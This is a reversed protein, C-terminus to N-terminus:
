RTCASCQGKKLHKECYAKGCKKCINKKHADCFVQSCGPENCKLKHDSCLIPENKCLMCTFYHDKCTVKGCRTCTKTCNDCFLKKCENCLHMSTTRAGCYACDVHYKETGAAFANIIATFTGKERRKDYGQVQIRIVPVFVISADFNLNDKIKQIIQERNLPVMTLELQKLIKSADEIQDDLASIDKTTSDELGQLNDGKNKTTGKSRRKINIQQLQRASAERRKVLADIRSKVEAITVKRTKGIIVSLRENLVVNNNYYETLTGLLKRIVPESPAIQTVTTPVNIKLPLNDKVPYINSIVLNQDLEARNIDPIQTLMFLESLIDKTNISLLDEIPKDLNLTTKVCMLPILREHIDLIRRDVLDIKMGEIIKLVDFNSPYKCYFVYIQKNIPPGVDIPPAPGMAETIIIESSDLEQQATKTSEKTATIGPPELGPANADDNKGEAQGSNAIDEETGNIEEKNDKSEIEQRGSKDVNEADNILNDKQSGPQRTTFQGETVILDSNPYMKKLKRIDEEDLPGFHLTMLCQSRIKKVINKNQVFVLFERTKLNGIDDFLQDMQEDGMKTNELVPRLAEATKDRQIKSIQTGIIWTNLNTRAYTDIDGPTQSILIIGVGFSRGQRILSLLPAKSLPNKIPPLFNFAEDVLFLLDLTEKGRQTFMWKIFAFAVSSVFRIKEEDNLFKLCFIIVPVKGDKKGIKLL